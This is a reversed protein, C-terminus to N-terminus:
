SPAGGDENLKYRGGDVMSPRPASRTASGRAERDKVVHDLLVVTAGARALRRPLSWSVIRANDELPVGELGLAANVGDVIAVSPELALAELDAEADGRLPEDPRVYHFFRELQEQRNRWPGAHARRRDAPEEFDIYLAHEGAKIADLSVTLALFTKGCEPEGHSNTSRAPTPSVRAM